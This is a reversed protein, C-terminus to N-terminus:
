FAGPLEGSYRQANENAGNQILFDIMAMNDHFYALHLPTDSYKNVAVNINITSGIEILLRMFHIEEQTYMHGSGGIIYPTFSVSEGKHTKSLLTNLHELVHNPM